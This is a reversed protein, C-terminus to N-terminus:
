SLEEAPVPKSLHAVIASRFEAHAKASSAASMFITVDPRGLVVAYGTMGPYPCSAAIKQVWGGALEGLEQQTPEKMKIVIDGPKKAAIAPPIYGVEWPAPDPVDCLTLFGQFQKEVHVPRSIDWVGPGLRTLPYRDTRTGMPDVDVFHKQRKGPGRQLAFALRWVGGDNRVVHGCPRSGEPSTTASINSEVWWVLTRMIISDNGPDQNAPNM